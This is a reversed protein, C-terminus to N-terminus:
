KTVQGKLGIVAKKFIKMRSTTTHLGGELLAEYESAKESLDNLATVYAAYADTSIATGSQRLETIETLLKDIADVSEAEFARKLMERQKTDDILPLVHVTIAPIKEALRELGELKKVHEEGVFYVGGTPYRVNTAHAAELVARITARIGYSNLAGREAQFRKRVAECIDKGVASPSGNLDHRCGLTADKKVFTLEAVEDYSLRRGGSDVIERVVRRTIVKGGPLDRVLYNEFINPDDTPIRKRASATTVRRFVDADGPPKPVHGGLGSLVLIKFVEEHDILVSEPVSYWCLRGLFANQGHAIREAYQEFTTSM